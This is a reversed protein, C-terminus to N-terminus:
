RKWVGRPNVCIETPIQRPLEARKWISRQRFGSLPNAGMGHGPIWARIQWPLDGCKAEAGWSSAKEGARRM